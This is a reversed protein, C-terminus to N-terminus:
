PLMFFENGHNQAVWGLLLEKGKSKILTLFLKPTYLGSKLQLAESHETELSSKIM